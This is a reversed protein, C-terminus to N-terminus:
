NRRRSVQPRLIAGLIANIIAIVIAGLVGWWFGAINLGFGFWNTVSATILLLLGNILFSILGLTLVYLPIAIIKVVTGVITNVIGFILGAILFSLLLPGTGEAFPTMTIAPILLTTLWLAVANMVIRVLFKTM